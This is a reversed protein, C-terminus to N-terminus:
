KAWWRIKWGGGFEKGGWAVDALRGCHQDERGGVGDCELEAREGDM